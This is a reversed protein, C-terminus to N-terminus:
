RPHGVPAPLPWTAPLTPNVAVLPGLQQRNVCHAQWGGYLAPYPRGIGIFHATLVVNGSAPMPRYLRRYHTTGPKAAYSRTRSVSTDGGAQLVRRLPIALGTPRGDDENSAGIPTPDGPPLGALAYYCARNATDARLTLEGNGDVPAATIPNSVYVHAPM